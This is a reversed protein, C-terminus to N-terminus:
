TDKSYFPVLIINWALSYIYLKFSHKNMKLIDTSIPILATNCLAM